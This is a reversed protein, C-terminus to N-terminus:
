FVGCTPLIRERPYVVFFSCEVAGPQALERRRVCSFGWFTVAIEICPVNKVRKM